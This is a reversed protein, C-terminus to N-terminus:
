QRRAIVFTRLFQLFGVLRAGQWHEAGLCRSVVCELDYVARLQQVIDLLRNAFLQM